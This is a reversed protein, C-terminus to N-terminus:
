QSLTSHIGEGPPAMDALSDNRIISVKHGRDTVLCPLTRIGSSQHANGCSTGGCCFDDFVERRGACARLCAHLCAHMCVRVCM